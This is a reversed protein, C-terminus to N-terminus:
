ILGRIGELQILNSGNATATTILSIITTIVVSTINKEKM